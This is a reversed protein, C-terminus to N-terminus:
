SVNKGIGRTVAALVDLGSPLPHVNGGGSGEAAPDGPVDRSFHLELSNWPTVQQLVWLEWHDLDCSSTSSAM